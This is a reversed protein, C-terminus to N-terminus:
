AIIFAHQKVNNKEHGHASIKNLTPIFFKPRMLKGM